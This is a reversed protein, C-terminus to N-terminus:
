NIKFRKYKNFLYSIPNLMITMIKFHQTLWTLFFCTILSLVL